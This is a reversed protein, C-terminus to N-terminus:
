CGRWDRGVEDRASAGADQFELGLAGEAGEGLNAQARAAEFNRFGAQIGAVTAAEQVDHELM